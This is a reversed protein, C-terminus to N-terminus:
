ILETVLAFYESSLEAWSKAAAYNQIKLLVEHSLDNDTYLQEVASAISNPTNDIITHCIDHLDKLQSSRSVIVPRGAALALRISGSATEKSEPYAFVLMDALGLITIIEERDLFDSIHIVNNELNLRTIEEKFRTALAASNMNRPNVANLAILKVDPYQLKLQSIAELTEFVGKNEVLFGHTAIVPTSGEFGLRSRLRARSQYPFVIGGHPFHYCNTLGQKNLYALDYQNLVHIQHCKRLTDKLQGLESGPYQVAHPTLIIKLSLKELGDILRKLAMFNYFGLNYQIHVLDLKGDAQRRKCFDLVGAFDVEGHEWLRHVNDKDINVRNTTDKTALYSVSAFSSELESYLYSSYEAIGCVTNYTSVVALHTDAVKELSGLAPLLGVVKAASDSWNFRRSTHWARLIKAKNDSSLALRMKRGLDTVDVEAWFAGPNDLHSRAPKLEYDVLYSNYDNLFDMQGSWGTAVVVLGMDMAELVPMNFGEAKSPSVYVDCMGMLAMMEADSFDSDLYIVRDRVEKPLSSIASPFENTSNPYSKVVLVPRLTEDRTDKGANLYFESAFATILEKAGKRALGSSIHLLLPEGSRKAEVVDALQKSRSALAVQQAKVEDSNEGQALPFPANPIIYIPLTVGSRKLVMLTHLSAAFVCDLHDNYEKVWKEPFRNEEWALLSIKVKGPLEALGHLSRPDKPFNNYIVIDWQKDKWEPKDLDISLESLEPYRALDATGPLRSVESSRAGIRIRVPNQIDSSSALDRIAVALSRNVKALSYEDACPGYILVETTM